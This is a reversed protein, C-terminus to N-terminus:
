EMSDIGRGSRRVPFVALQRTCGPDVAVNTTPTSLPAARRSCPAVNRAPASAPTAPPAATEKNPPRAVERSLGACAGSCTADRNALVARLARARRGTLPLRTAEIARRRVRDPLRRPTQAPQAHEALQRIPYAQSRCAAGNKEILWQPQRARPCCVLVTRWTRGPHVGM